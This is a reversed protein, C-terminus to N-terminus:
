GRLANPPYGAGLPGGAEGRVTVLQWASMWKGATEILKATAVADRKAALLARLANQYNTITDAM